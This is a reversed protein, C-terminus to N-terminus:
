RLSMSEPYNIETLFLGHAPASLSRSLPKQEDMAKRVTSLDVKGLGIQLSMGVILRVMGRLFRNASITFTMGSANEQWGAQYINCLYHETDSNTKCFPFFADYDLLLDAMQQMRNRDLKDFGYFCYVLDRKFPDPTGSIEYRYTRRIASYRAHLDLPVPFIDNIAIDPPLMRNLRHLTEPPISDMEPDFHAYYQLAHVGADTRGCGVIHCETRLIKNLSTELIEQVSIGNPQKQWGVYPTGRYALKLFYRM